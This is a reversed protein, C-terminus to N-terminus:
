AIIGAQNLKGGINGHYYEITVADGKKYYKEWSKWVILGDVWLVLGEPWEELRIVGYKNLLHKGKDYLRNIIDGNHSLEIIPYPAQKKEESFKLLGLAELQTILYPVNNDALLTGLKRIAEERTM